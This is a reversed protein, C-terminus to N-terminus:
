PLQLQQHSHCGQKSILCSITWKEFDILLRNMITYIYIYIDIGFEWNMGGEKGEQHRYTQGRYGLREARCIPEVGICNILAYIHFKSPKGPPEFPLTNAQLAPSGPEIGPDSLDGPSPFPLGSGYEQRSFEM